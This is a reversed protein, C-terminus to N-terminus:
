VPVLPSSRSAAAFVAAAEDRVDIVSINEQNCAVLIPAIHGGTLTFVHTIGGEKLTQAVLHGGYKKTQPGPAKKALSASSSSPSAAAVGDATVHAPAADSFHGLLVRVREM